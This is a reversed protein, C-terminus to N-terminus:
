KETRQLDYFARVKEAVDPTFIHCYYDLTRKAVSVGDEVSTCHKRNKAYIKQGLTRLLDKGKQDGNRAANVLAPYIERPNHM